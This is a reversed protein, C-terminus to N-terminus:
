EFKKLGMILGEPLWILLLILVQALWPLLLTWIGTGWSFMSRDSGGAEWILTVMNGPCGFLWHKTIHQISQM